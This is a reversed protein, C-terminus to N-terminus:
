RSPLGAPPRPVPSLRRLVRVPRLSRPPPWPALRLPDLSHHHDGSSNTSRCSFVPPPVLHSSATLQDSSITSSCRVTNRSLSSSPLHLHHLPPYSLLLSHQVVAVALALNLRASSPPCSPILLTLCHPPSCSRINAVDDRRGLGTADRQRFTPRVPGGTNRRRTKAIRWLWMWVVMISRCLLM